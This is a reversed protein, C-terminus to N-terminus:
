RGYKTIWSEIQSISVPTFNNADVGVDFMKGLVREKPKKHTHGHLWFADESYDRSFRLHRKEGHWNETGDSGRMGTTDERFIGRPPCHNLEVRKNAIFLTASYLVCSFGAKFMAHNSADHNGSILILSGHLRNLISRLKEINSTGVDGLVYVVGYSPVTANWRAILTEHMEAVTTFPRNSYEIVRDHFLHLDSTFYIPIVEVSARKFTLWDADKWPIWGLKFKRILNNHSGTNYTQNLQKALKSGGCQSNNWITFYEDARNWIALTEATMSPHNWPSVGFMGNGAGRRAEKNRQVWKEYVEVSYIKKPSKGYMVNKSGSNIGLSNISKKVSLVHKQEESFGEITNGGYGGVSINYTKRSKILEPTVLEKEHTYAEDRSSHFKLIEREFNQKGHKAIARSLITGSGLYGDELDNTEHVGIYFLGNKKNTTKYTFIFKKM